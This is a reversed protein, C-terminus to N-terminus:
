KAAAPAKPAPLAVPENVFIKVNADKELKAILAEIKKRFEEAKLNEIISAKVQDFPLIEAKKAADRRIIHFGFDTQVLDSLQGEKLAFAAAEFEPVMQGKQFAGLSGNQKGSPCASEKQALAEFKKPDKKLQALIDAAKKKAAAVAEPKDDKKATILIHSARITGEPDAPTKFMNKNKDYFAKAQADTVKITSNITKDFYQEIAFSQQAQPNSTIEDIYSDLNKKQAALQSKFVELDKAPIKDLQAKLAKEMAAKSPKFGAKEAAALILPLDIYSKIMRPALSQLMQENMMPPLKGNPMQSAIYNIFDQKTIKKGNVEAVVNPLFAWIKPDKADIEKATEGVKMDTPQLAAEATTDAKAEVAQAAADAKTDGTSKEKDCGAAFACIAFLVAICSSLKLEKKM